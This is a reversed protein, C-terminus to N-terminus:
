TGTPIGLLTMHIQSLRAAYGQVNFAEIYRARAQLGLRERLAEDRLVRLIAESLADVDGPQVFLGSVGPTIVEEHAGVPTAIVALGHSLGELVSMALGEAHSPLVLLDAAKCLVGVGLQDIWGPFHVKEAIGLDAAMRRFAAVDGGGAITACWDEAKVAPRALAELLEPVGKRASLHGLFLIQRSTKRESRIVNGSWPDPVANHLVAVREPPICLVTALRRQDRHGLVLVLKAGQFCKRILRQMARNSGLYGDTFDYDHVHLLYPVRSSRAVAALILKRLVSGRGAINIHALLPMRSRRGDAIQAAAQMLVRVAVISQWWPAAGLFAPGRSDVIRYLIPLKVRRVAGLFYGMQRGIGGGHEM